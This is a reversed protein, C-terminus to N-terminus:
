AKRKGWNELESRKVKATLDITMPSVSIMRDLITVRVDSDREPTEQDLNVEYGRLRRGRPTEVIKSRFYPNRSVRTWRWGTSKKADSPVNLNLIDAGRPIGQQLIQKAFRGAWDASISFDVADSHSRHFEPPTEVSVALTACGLSAAEIAACVTGSITVGNGINEGYNIGSIVLDPKREALALVANRVCIAPTAYVAFAPARRGDVRYDFPMIRDSGAFARGMSTQQRRPAVILVEGIKMIERALALLGPSDIGDDNTLVILKSTPFQFNSIPFQTKRKL